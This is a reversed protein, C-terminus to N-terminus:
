EFRTVGSVPNEGTLGSGFVVWVKGLRNRSQELPLCSRSAAVQRSSLAAHLKALADPFARDRTTTVLGIGAVLGAVVAPKSSGHATISETDGRRGARGRRTDFL